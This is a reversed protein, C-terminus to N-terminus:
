RQPQDLLQQIREVPRLDGACVASVIGVVDVGQGHLLVEPRSADVVQWEGATATIANGLAIGASWRLAEQHELDARARVVADVVAAVSADEGLEFRDRFVEDGKAAHVRAVRGIADPVFEATRRELGEPLPSRGRSLTVM